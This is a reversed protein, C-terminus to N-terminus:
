EPLYTGFSWVHGEPDRVSYERSGHDTTQLARIVEAGAAMAREYHADADAVYVYITQTSIGAEKPPKQNFLHEKVSGLMVVGPGLALEAHGVTNDPGEHVARAEFGFAEVLWDIAAHADRYTLAPFINARLHRAVPTESM